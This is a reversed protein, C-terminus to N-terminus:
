LFSLSHCPSLLLVLFQAGLGLLATFINPYPPFRFVDTHVLKWGFDDLEEEDTYRAYDNKLVRIVILGLFGTLFLVLVISNLISLWHVKM